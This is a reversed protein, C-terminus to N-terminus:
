FFFALPGPLLHKSVDKNDPRLAARVEGTVELVHMAIHQIAASSPGKKKSVVLYRSAFIIM